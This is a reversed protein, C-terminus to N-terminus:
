AGKLPVAEDRAQKLYRLAREVIEIDDGFHGLSANCGRCLLGRV